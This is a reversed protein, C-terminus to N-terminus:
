LHFTAGATALEVPRGFATEADSRQQEADGGPPVHTIVLRGVKAAKASQGAQRASLHQVTREQERTLSAECLALDIGPGLKSLSWGPGTDASYGLSAGGAEDIRVALTEPPHDTRSFAITLGGLRAISGDHVDTWDCCDGIPGNVEEVLERVRGPSWVPVGRRKRLYKVAVHWTAADTWHDPHAHSLVVGDIADIDVLRQVASFTGPGADLWLTVGGGRV